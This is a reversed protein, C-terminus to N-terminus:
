FSLCWLYEEGNPRLWRVCLRTDRALDGGLVHVDIAGDPELRPTLPAVVVGPGDLEVRVWRLPEDSINVLRRVVRHRLAAGVDVIFPVRYAEPRRM